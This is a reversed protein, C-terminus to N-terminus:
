QDYVSMSSVFPFIEASDKKGFAQIACASVFESCWPDTRKATYGMPKVSNFISILEAHAISGGVTGIYSKAIRVIDDRSSM